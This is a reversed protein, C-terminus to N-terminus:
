PHFKIRTSSSQNSHTLSLPTIAASRSSTAQHPLEPAIPEPGILETNIVRRLHRLPKCVLILLRVPPRPRPRRVRVERHQVREPLLVPRRRVIDRGALLSVPIDSTRPLQILVPQPVQRVPQRHRTRVGRALGVPFQDVRHGLPLRDLRHDRAAPVPLGPLEHATTPRSFPVRPISPLLAAPDPQVSGVLAPIRNGPLDEHVPSAIVGPGRHQRGALRLGLRRERQAARPVRGPGVHLQGVVQCDAQGAGVGLQPGPPRRRRLHLDDRGVRSVQGALVRAREVRPDGRVQVLERGALQPVPRGPQQDADVGLGRFQAPLPGLAPRVHFDAPVGVAGRCDHHVPNGRLEARGRHGPDVGDGLHVHFRSGLLREAPNARLQRDRQQQADQRVDVEGTLGAAVAPIVTGPGTGAAPAHPGPGTGPVRIRPVLRRSGDPVEREPAHGANGAQGIEAQVVKGRVPQPKRWSRLFRWSRWPRGSGTRTWPFGGARLRAIGAPGAAQTVRGTPRGRRPPMGLFNGVRHRRPM